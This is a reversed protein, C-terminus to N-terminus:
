TKPLPPPSIQVVCVKREVEPLEHLLVTSMGLLKSSLAQRLLKPDDRFCVSNRETPVGEWVFLLKDCELHQVVRVPFCINGKQQQGIQSKKGAGLGLHVTNMQFIVM